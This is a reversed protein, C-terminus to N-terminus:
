DKHGKLKYAEPGLDLDVQAWIKVEPQKALAPETLITITKFFKGQPEEHLNPDFEVTLIGTDGKKFENKSIKASTCACSTPTSTVKVPNEGTYEFAFEHSIIGGSQKIVGFEFESEKM